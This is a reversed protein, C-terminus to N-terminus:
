MVYYEVYKKDYDCNMALARLEAIYTSIGEEENQKRNLFKHRSPIILPKPTLHKRLADRLKDLTQDSPIGPALLCKLLQYLKASSGDEPLAKDLFSFAKRRVEDADSFKIIGPPAERRNPLKVMLTRISKVLADLSNCGQGTRENDSNVGAHLHALEYAGNGKVQRRSDPTVNNDKLFALYAQGLTGHPLAALFKYDLTNSNIRPKDNLITSGEPDNLMKERIQKASAYGTTEGFVAIMDHRFPDTICLMSSGITLLAKQLFSTPIHDKYLPGSINESHPEHEQNNLHENEIKSDPVASASLKRFSSFQRLFFANRKSVHLNSVFMLFDNFLSCKKLLPSPFSVPPHCDAPNCLEAFKEGIDASAKFVIGIM